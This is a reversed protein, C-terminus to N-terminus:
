HPQPRASRTERLRLVVYGSAPAVLATVLGWPWGALHTTVAIEAAWALPFALIGALLKYTAPDDPSRSLWGSIWGPLSYPLWNLAYGVVFLPLLLLRVMPRLPKLDAVADRGQSHERAQAVADELAIAIRGTLARVSEGPREQYTIVEPAADLAPGLHVFVRTRFREKADYRLGVPVVRVGLPGRRSEAGLVIRAAGTKLPPQRELSHSMGEPFIAISGGAALLAHCRSFTDSNRTVDAGQDRRRYVPLAGAFFLLPGMVPHRFITSKAL